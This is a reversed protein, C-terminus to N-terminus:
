AAGGTVPAAAHRRRWAVLGGAGLLAVGALVAAALWRRVPHPAGSTHEDEHVDIDTALLDMQNGLTVTATVPTLGAALPKGLRATFHGEPAAAVEVAQGDVELALQAGTVPANDAYRDLYLTLQLGDVVGVLEFAPSTAAFRPLAPGTAAAPAEHDHAHDHGPGAHALGFSAVLALAWGYRTM